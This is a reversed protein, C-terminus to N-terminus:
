PLEGARWPERNPQRREYLALARTMRDALARQGAQRAAEIAGRQWDAAEGYRGTEGLAMAMTEGGDVRRQAESLANLVELAKQGDRVSADPAASLLRALAIAFDIQGRHIDQGQELRVRAERYRGLAMLTMAHGFLAEASQPDIALVREFEVRAADTQGGRRILSALRVRAEVYAPDHRVAARYHELAELYQGSTELMVGLSYHSPPHTPSLALAEEFARRAGEHDDQLYLVTGLRQKVSPNDPELELAKRFGDAAANWDGRDLARVGRGEWAKPSNLAENLEQMLPDHPAVGQLPRARALHSEARARDGLARYALGLPHHLGLADPALALADELHRVAGAYDQKALAARGLRFRAAVSRPDRELAARLPPEAAEPRGAVVHVEGLWLLTPVDDPRIRRAEEFYRVAAALDGRIRAVQGLYYTWRFEGPALQRANSFYPESAEFWQGALLLKGVEGYANAREVTPADSRTALRSARAHGEELQARVSSTTTSLDPLSVDRLSTVTAPPSETSSTATAEPRSCATVISTVLLSIGALSAGRRRGRIM